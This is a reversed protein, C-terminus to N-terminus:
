VALTQPPIRTQGAYQVDLGHIRTGLFTGLDGRLAKAPSASVEVSVHPEDVSSWEAQCNFHWTILQEQM